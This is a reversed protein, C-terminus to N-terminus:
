YHTYGGRNQRCENCRGRMSNILNALDAQPIAQWEHQLLVLLQQLNAPPAHNERVRRGLMDWAHEIPNMDPSNAPWDMRNIQAQQLFADVLRARHPPANDDQLVARPGIQRLMPVVLPRLIQDRYVHGNLNGQVHYLPTRHHMNIGAWVMVSGGRYARRERVCAPIMREGTRRWTRTRGDDHELSFRSEDSFLVQSWQQRTWTLHRTSWALRAVMHRQTMFIRGLQRRSHLGQDHLRNRVTQQSINTNTAVRLRRRITSATITRTQLAQRTIYRDQRQTTSRPRGSRPRTVVSGTAQFRQRLRVIVSHSCGLRAAIERLRIGEQLWALARGRDILNLHRRPPM